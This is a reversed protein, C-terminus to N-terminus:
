GNKEKIKKRLYVSFGWLSLLTFSFIPISIKLTLKLFSLENKIDTINMNLNNIQQNLIIIERNAITINKSEYLEKYYSSLNTHYILNLTLNTNNNNCTTLENQYPLVEVSCDVPQPIEANVIGLFTTVLFIFGILIVVKKGESM